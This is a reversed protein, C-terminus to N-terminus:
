VGRGETYEARNKFSRNVADKYIKAVREEGGAIVLYVQAEKGSMLPRVVKDIIGCEALASLSDPIRM